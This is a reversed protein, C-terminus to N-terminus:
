FVAIASLFAQSELVASFRDKEVGVTHEMACSLVWCGAGAVRLLFRLLSPYWLVDIAHLLDKMKVGSLVKSRTLYRYSM